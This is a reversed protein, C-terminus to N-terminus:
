INDILKKSKSSKKPKSLTKVKEITEDLVTTIGAVTTKLAKFEMVLEDLQKEMDLARGM